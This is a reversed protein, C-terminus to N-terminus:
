LRRCSINIPPALNRAGFADTLSHRLRSGPEGYVGRLLAEWHGLLGQGGRVWVETPQAFSKLSKQKPAINDLSDTTTTLIADWTVEAISAVGQRPAPAQIAVEYERQKVRGAGLDRQSELRPPKGLWAFLGLGSAVAESKWRALGSRM